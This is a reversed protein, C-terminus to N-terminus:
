SLFEGYFAGKTKRKRCTDTEKRGGAGSDQASNSSMSTASRAAQNKRVEVLSTAASLFALDVNASTKASTSMFVAGLEQAKLRGEAETVQHQEPPLDTKNAVLIKVCDIIKKQPFGDYM